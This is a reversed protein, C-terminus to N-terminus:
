SISIGAGASLLAYNSLKLSIAGRSSSSLGGAAASSSSGAAPFEPTFTMRGDKRFSVEGFTESLEEFRAAPRARNMEAIIADSWV